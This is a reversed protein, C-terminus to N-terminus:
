KYNGRIYFIYYILFGYRTKKKSVKSEFHRSHFDRQSFECIREKGSENKWYLLHEQVHEPTLHLSIYAIHVNIITYTHIHPLWPPQVSLFYLRFPLRPALGSPEQNKRARLNRLAVKGRGPFSEERSHENPIEDNESFEVHIGRIRQINATM